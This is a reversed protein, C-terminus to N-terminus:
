IDYMRPIKIIHLYKELGIAKFKETIITEFTRSVDTGPRPVQCKLVLKNGFKAFSAQVTDRALYVIGPLSIHNEELIVNRALIVKQIYDPLGYRVAIKQGLYPHYTEIFEQTLHVADDKYLKRYHIMTKRGIDMYLGCLEAKKVDDERFGTQTAIIMAMISTAYSAAFLAEIEPDDDDCSDDDTLMFILAKIRETGLCNILEFFTGVQGRKLTGLYISNAIATLKMSLQPSIQMGIMDLDNRSANPDDLINLVHIPVPHHKTRAAMLHDIKDIFAIANEIESPLTM